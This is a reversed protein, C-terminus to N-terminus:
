YGRGRLDIDGTPWDGGAPYRMVIDDHFPNAQPDDESLSNVIRNEVLQCGIREYFSQISLSTQFMAFPFDGNDIRAFAAHTVAAGLGQGRCAPDSAVMALAMIPLDGASTGVVRCFTMAHAILKNGEWILYSIPEQQSSGSYDRGVRKLQEAREVPGRDPRPWVAALLEGAALADDERIQTLRCAKVPHPMTKM